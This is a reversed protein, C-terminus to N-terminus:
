KEVYTGGMKEAVAELDSGNIAWNEGVFTGVGLEAHTFKLLEFNEENEFISLAAEDGCSGSEASLGGDNHEDWDDCQGGADVFAQKLEQVSEFSGGGEPPGGCGALLAITAVAPVIIGIRRRAKTTGM